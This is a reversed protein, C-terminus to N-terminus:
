GVPQTPTGSGGGGGENGGQQEGGSEGPKKDDGGAAPADLYHTPGDILHLHKCYVFAEQANGDADEATIKIVTRIAAEKANGLWIVTNEELDKENVSGAENVIEITPDTFEENETWTLVIYWGSQYKKNTDFDTFNEKYFVDGYLYLNEHMVDCLKGVAIGDAKATVDDQVNFYSAITHVGPDVATVAPTEGAMVADFVEYINQRNVPYYKENKEDVVKIAKCTLLAALAKRATMRKFYAFGNPYLTKNYVMRTPYRPTIEVLVRTENVMSM